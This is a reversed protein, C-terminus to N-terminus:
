AFASAALGTVVPCKCRVSCRGRFSATSPLHLTRRTRSMMRTTTVANKAAQPCAPVDPSGLAAVERVGDGVGDADEDDGTCGVGAGEDDVGAGDRDGDLGEDGAGACVGVSTGPM